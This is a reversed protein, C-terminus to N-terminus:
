REGCFVLCFDQRTAGSFRQALPPVLRGPLPSGALLRREVLCSATRRRRGGGGENERSYVCPSTELVYAQLVSLYPLLAVHPPGALLIRTTHLTGATCLCRHITCGVLRLLSVILYTWASGFARLLLQVGYNVSSFTLRLATLVIVGAGRFRGERWAQKIRDRHKKLEEKLPVKTLNEKMRRRIEDLTEQFLEEKTRGSSENKSPGSGKAQEHVRVTRSSGGREVSGAPPEGEAEEGGDEERGAKDGGEKGSRASSLSGRHGSSTTREEKTKGSAAEGSYEGPNDDLSPFDQAHQIENAAKLAATVDQLFPLPPETPVYRVPDEGNNQDETRQPSSSGPTTAQTSATSSSSPVVTAGGLSDSGLPGPSTAVHVIQEARVDAWYLGFTQLSRNPTLKDFISEAFEQQNLETGKSVVFALFSSIASVFGLIAFVSPNSALAVSVSVLLFINICLLITPMYRILEATIKMAILKVKEKALAAMKKLFRAAESPERDDSGFRRKFWQAIKTGAVRVARTARSLSKELRHFMRGLRTLYGTDSSPLNQPRLQQCLYVGLLDGQLEHAETRATRRGHAEARRKYRRLEMSMEDFFEDAYAKIDETSWSAFRRAAQPAHTGAPLHRTEISEASIQSERRSDDPGLRRHLQPAFAGPTNSTGASTGPGAMGIVTSPSPLKLGPPAPYIGGSEEIELFHRAEKTFIDEGPSEGSASSDQRSADQPHRGNGALATAVNVEEEIEADEDNKSQEGNKVGVFSLPSLSPNKESPSFRRESNQEAVGDEHEEKWVLRNRNDDAKLLNVGQEKDKRRGEETSLRKKPPSAGYVSKRDEVSLSAAGVDAAVEDPPVMVMPKEQSRSKGGECDHERAGGESSSAPLRDRSVSVDGYLKLGENGFGSHSALSTHHVAGRQHQDTSAHARGEEPGVDAQGVPSLLRTEISASSPGWSSTKEEMRADQSDLLDDRAPITGPREPAFGDQGADNYTSSHWFFRRVFARPTRHYRSPGTRLVSEMWTTGHHHHAPPNLEHVEAGSPFHLFVDRNSADATGSTQESKQLDTTSSFPLSSDRVTGGNKGTTTLGGEGLSAPVVSAKENWERGQPSTRLPVALINLYSCCLSFAFISCLLVPLLQPPSLRNTGSISPSM